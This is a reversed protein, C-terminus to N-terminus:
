FAVRSGGGTAQRILNRAWQTSDEVHSQTVGRTAQTIEKVAEVEIRPSSSSLFSTSCFSFCPSGVPISSQANASSGSTAWTAIIAFALTVFKGLAACAGGRVFKAVM